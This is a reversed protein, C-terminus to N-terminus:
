TSRSRQAATLCMRPCQFFRVIEVRLFLTVQIITGLTFIIGPDEIVIQLVLDSSLACLLPRWIVATMMITM